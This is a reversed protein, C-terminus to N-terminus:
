AAEPGSPAELAELTAFLQENPPQTPIEYVQAWAIKGERDILFIARDTIGEPRLVGYRRAVEGHPFFDSLLDFSVGGLSDAWAKKSPVADVSIGLVRTDLEEFRSLNAQYSCLQSACVPTWALPHFALLVNNRGRFSSLRVSGGRHSQLEFDPALDGVKLAM